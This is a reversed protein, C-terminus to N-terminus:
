SIPAESGLAIDGKRAKRVLFIRSAEPRKKKGEKKFSSHEVRITSDSRVGSTRKLSPPRESSNEGIQASNERNFYLVPNSASVRRSLYLQSSLSSRRREERHISSKVGSGFPSPLGCSTHSWAASTSRHSKWPSKHRVEPDWELPSEFPKPGVSARCWSMSGGETYIHESGQANRKKQSPAYKKGSTTRGCMALISKAPDESKRRNISPHEVINLASSESDGRAQSRV